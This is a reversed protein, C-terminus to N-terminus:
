KLVVGVYGAVAKNLTQAVPFVRAKHLEHKLLKYFLMDSFPAGAHPAFADRITKSRVLQTARPDPQIHEAIFAAIRQIFDARAAPNHVAAHRRKPNKEREQRKRERQEQERRRREEEDKKRQRRDADEKTRRQHENEEQQRREQERPDEPRQACIHLARDKADNLRKSIEEGSPGVKDPHFHIIKKRWARTVCSPSATRPLGLM